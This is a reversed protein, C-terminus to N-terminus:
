GRGPGPRVPVPTLPAPAPPLSAGPQPVQVPGLPKTPTPSPSLEADLYLPGCGGNPYGNNDITRFGGAGFCCEAQRDVPNHGPELPRGMCADYQTQSYKANATGAVGFALGTMLAAAALCQGTRTFITSRM